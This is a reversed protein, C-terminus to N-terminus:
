INTIDMGADKRANVDGILAEWIPVGFRRSGVKGNKKIVITVGKALADTQQGIAVELEKKLVDNWQRAAVPIAIHRITDDTYERKEEESYLDPLDIALLNLDNSSSIVLPVIVLDNAVLNKSQSFSSSLSSVIQDRPAAIIVVRKDIGRDRRLDSLKVVIDEGQFPLKLRLGALAGGKQIRQLLARQADLDRKILFGIVPIGGINVALNQVLTNMDGERVGANVALLSTFSLFAALAASAGLGALIFLRVKRFPAETEEKLIQKRTFGEDNVMEDEMM